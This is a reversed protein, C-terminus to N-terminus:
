RHLRRPPVARQPGPLRVEPAAREEARAAEVPVLGPDDPAESCGAACRLASPRSVVRQPVAAAASVLAAALLEPRLASARRVDPQEAAEDPARGESLTGAPLRVGSRQAELAAPMDAVAAAVLSSALRAVGM